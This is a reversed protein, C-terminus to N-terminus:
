SSYSCSFKSSLSTSTLSVDVCGLSRPKSPHDLFLSFVKSRLLVCGLVKHNAVFSYDDFCLICYNYKCFQKVSRLNRSLAPVLYVYCLYLSGTPTSMSFPDVASIPLLHGIDVIVKPSRYIPKLNWIMCPDNTMNTSANIDLYWNLDTSEDVSLASFSASLDIVAYVHDFKQPCNHYLHGSRCFQCVLTPLTGLIGKQTFPPSYFNDGDFSNPTRSFLHTPTAVMLPIWHTHTHSLLHNRMGPQEM